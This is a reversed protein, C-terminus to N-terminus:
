IDYDYNYSIFYCICPHADASCGGAFLMDLMDVIIYYLITFVHTLMLSRWGACILCLLDIIMYNMMIFVHQALMLRTSVQMRSCREMAAMVGSEVERVDHGKEAALSKITEQM